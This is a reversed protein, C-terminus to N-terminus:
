QQQKAFRAGNDHEASCYTDAVVGKLWITLKVPATAAMIRSFTALFAHNQCFLGRNQCFCWLIPSNICFKATKVFFIGICTRFCVFQENSKIFVPNFSLLFSM